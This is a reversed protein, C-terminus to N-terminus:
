LIGLTAMADCVARRSRWRHLSDRRLITPSTGADDCSDDFLSTGIKRHYTSWCDGIVCANRRWSVDEDEETRYITVEEYLLM